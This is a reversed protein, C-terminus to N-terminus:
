SLATMATSIKAALAQNTLQMASLSTALNADDVTLKDVQAQLAAAQAKAAALQAALDPPPATVAFFGDKMLALEAPAETLNPGGQWLCAVDVVPFQAELDHRAQNMWFAQSGAPGTNPANVEGLCIFQLHPYIKLLWNFDQGYSAVLSPGPVAGAYPDLMFGDVDNGSVRYLPERNILDYGTWCQFTQLGAAKGQAKRRDLCHTVAANLAAPVGSAAAAKADEEHEYGKRHKGKPNPKLSEMTQDFVDLDADIAGNSVSTAPITGTAADRFKYSAHVIYGAAALDALTKHNQGKYRYARIVDVKRGIAAEVAKYNQEDSGVLV